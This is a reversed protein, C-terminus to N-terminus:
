ARGAGGTRDRGSREFVDIALDQAQVDFQVTVLAIDGSKSISPPVWRATRTPSRRSTRSRAGPQRREESIAPQVSPM